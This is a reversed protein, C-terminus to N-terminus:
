ARRRRNATHRRAANTTSRKGHRPLVVFVAIARAPRHSDRWNERCCSLAPPPPLVGIVSTPLELTPMTSDGVPVNVNVASGPPIVRAPSTVPSADALVTTVSVPEAPTTVTGVAASAKPVSGAVTIALVGSQNESPCNKEKRFAVFVAFM